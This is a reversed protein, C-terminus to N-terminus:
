LTEKESSHQEDGKSQRQAPKKRRRKVSISVKRVLSPTPSYGGNNVENLPDPSGVVVVDVFFAM